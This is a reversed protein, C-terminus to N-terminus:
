FCVNGYKWGIDAKVWLLRGAKEAHRDLHKIANITVVVAFMQTTGRVRKAVAPRL